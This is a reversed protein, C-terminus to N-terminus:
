SPHWEFRATNRHYSCKDMPAVLRNWLPQQVAVLPYETEAPKSNDWSWFAGLGSGTKEAVYNQPWTIEFSGLNICNM